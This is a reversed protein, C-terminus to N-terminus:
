FQYKMSQYNLVLGLEWGRMWVSQCPLVSEYLLQVKAYDHLQLIFYRNFWASLKGGQAREWDLNLIGGEMVSGILAKSGM